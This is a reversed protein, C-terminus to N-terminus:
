VITNSSLDTATVIYKNSEKVHDIEYFNAKNTVVYSYNGGGRKWCTRTLFARSGIPKVYKQVVKM